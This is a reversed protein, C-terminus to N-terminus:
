LLAGIIKTISAAAGITDASSKRGSSIVGSITQVWERATKGHATGETDRNHRATEAETALHSRNTEREQALNSRRLEMVKRAEIQNTERQLQNRTM